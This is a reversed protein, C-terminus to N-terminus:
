FADNGSLGNGARMSIAQQRNREMVPDMVYGCNMCRAAKMWMGLTEALDLFLDSVMFGQCRPCTM